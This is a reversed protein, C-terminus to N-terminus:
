QSFDQLLVQTLQKKQDRSLPLVFKFLAKAERDFLVVASGDENLSRFIHARDIFFPMRIDHAKVFGRIKKELIKITLAKKRSVSDENVTVVGWAKQTQYPAPLSNYIDLFSELCANCMFDNFDIIFLLLSNDEQNLIQIFPREGNMNFSGEVYNAYSHSAVFLLAIIVLCCRKQKMKMELIEDPNNKNM